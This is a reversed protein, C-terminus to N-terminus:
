DEMDCKPKIRMSKAPMIFLPQSLVLWFLPSQGRFITLRRKLHYLFLIGENIITIVVFSFLF